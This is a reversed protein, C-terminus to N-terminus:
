ILSLNSIFVTPVGIDLWIVNQEKASTKLKGIEAHGPKGLNRPSLTATYRCLQNITERNSVTVVISVAELAPV